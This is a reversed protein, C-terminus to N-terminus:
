QKTANQVVHLKAGSQDTHTAPFADLLRNVRFVTADAILVERFMEFQPAIAHPVAVEEFTHGLLDSL